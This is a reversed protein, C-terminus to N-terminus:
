RFEPAFPIDDDLDSNKRPRGTSIPDEKAHTPPRAPALPPTIDIDADIKNEIVRPADNGGDVPDNGRSTILPAPPMDYGVNVFVPVSTYGGYKKNKYSDTSLTVIPYGLHKNRTYSAVLGAIAGRGGHSGIKFVVFAGTEANMMPLGFGYNWPDKPEGTNNDREWFAKDNNGLDNGDREIPNL